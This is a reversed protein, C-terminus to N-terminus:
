GCNEGETFACDAVPQMHISELRTRVEAGIHAVVWILGGVLLVRLLIHEVM